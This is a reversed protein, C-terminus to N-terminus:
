RSVWLKMRGFDLVITRDKFLAMGMLLYDEVFLPKAAVLIQANTLNLEGLVLNRVIQLTEQRRGDFRPYSAQRRETKTVEWDGKLTEWTKTTMDLGGFHGTDLCVPPAPHLFPFEVFLKDGGIPMPKVSLPFVVWDSEDKPQFLTQSLLVSRSPGDIRFTAFARLLPLGLLITRDTWIRRGAREHALYSNHGVGFIHSFTADGISLRDIYCYGMIHAVPNPLAYFQAAGEVVAAPRTAFSFPCGTDLVVPFDTADDIRGTVCENGDPSPFLRLRVPDRALSTNSSGRPNLNHAVRGPANTVSAIEFGPGEPGPKMWRVGSVGKVDRVELIVVRLENREKVLHVVLAVVGLSCLFL